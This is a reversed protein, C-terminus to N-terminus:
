VRKKRFFRSLIEGCENELVGGRVEAVHNLKGDDFIHYCSSLSGGKPDAAGYVVRAIRAHVIAGVCMICPELTVYLIADPLRYNGLTQSSQRIALIEAHATPDSTSVPRNHARALVSGKYVLVAGIPVENEAFAAKAEELALTMFTEDKDDANM